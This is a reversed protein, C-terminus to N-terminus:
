QANILRAIRDRSQILRQEGDEIQEQKVAQFIAQAIRVPAGPERFGPANLGDLILDAGANM